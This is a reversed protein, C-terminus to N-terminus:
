DHVSVVNTSHLVLPYLTANCGSTSPYPMVLEPLPLAHLSSSYIFIFSPCLRCGTDLLPTSSKSVTVARLSAFIFRAFLVLLRRYDKRTLKKTERVNLCVFCELHKDAMEPWHGLSVDLRTVDMQDLSRPRGVRSVRGRFTGVLEEALALRFALYDYM